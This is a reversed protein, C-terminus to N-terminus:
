FSAHLQMFEIERDEDKGEKDEEKKNMQICFFKRDGGGGRRMMTM